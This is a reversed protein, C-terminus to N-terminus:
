PDGRRRRSHLEQPTNRGEKYDLGGGSVLTVESTVQYKKRLIVCVDASIISM